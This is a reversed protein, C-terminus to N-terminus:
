VQRINRSCRDSAKQYHLRLERTQLQRLREWSSNNVFDHRLYRCRQIQICCFIHKNINNINRWKQFTFALKVAASTTFSRLISDFCIWASHTIWFQSVAVALLAYEVPFWIVMISYLSIIYILTLYLIAFWRQWCQSLKLSNTLLLLLGVIELTGYCVSCWWGNCPRLNDIYRLICHHKSM